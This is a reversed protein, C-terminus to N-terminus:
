KLAFMYNYNRFETLGDAYYIKYSKANFRKLVTELTKFPYVAYSFLM